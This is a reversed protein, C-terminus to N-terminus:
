YAARWVEGSRFINAPERLEDPQEVRGEGGDGKEEANEKVEEVEGGEEESEEKEEKEEIDEASLNRFSCAQALAEACDPCEVIHQVIAKASMSFLKNLTEEIGNLKAMVESYRKDIEELQNKMERIRNNLKETEENLYGIALDVIMQSDAKREGMNQFGRLFKLLKGDINRYRKTTM